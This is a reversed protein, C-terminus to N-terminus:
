LAILLKQQVAAENVVIKGNDLSLRYNRRQQNEDLMEGLVDLPALPHGRNALVLTATYRIEWGAPGPLVHPLQALASWNCTGPCGAAPVTISAVYPEPRPLERPPETPSRRFLMFGVAVALLAIAAFLM